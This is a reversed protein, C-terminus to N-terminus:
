AASINAYFYAHANRAENSCLRVSTMLYCFGFDNMKSVLSIGFSLKAILRSLNVSLGEGSHSIPRQMLNLKPITVLTKCCDNSEAITQM